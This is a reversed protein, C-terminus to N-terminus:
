RVEAGSSRLSGRQHGLDEVQTCESAVEAGGSGALAQPTAFWTKANCVSTGLDSDDLRCGNALGLELLWQFLSIAPRVVRLDTVNECGKESAPM